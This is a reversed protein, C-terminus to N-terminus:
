QPIFDIFCIMTSVHKQGQINLIASSDDVKHRDSHVVHAYRASESILRQIRRQINLIASSDDLKHHGSYTLPCLILKGQLHIWQCLWGLAEYIRRQLARAGGGAHPM